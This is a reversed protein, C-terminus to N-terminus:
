FLVKLIPTDVNTGSHSLIENIISAEVSPASPTSMKGTIEKIIVKNKPKYNKIYDNEM